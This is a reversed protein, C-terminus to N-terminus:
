GKVSSPLCFPLPPPSSFATTPMARDLFFSERNATFSGEERKGLRGGSEAVVPISIARIKLENERKQSVVIRQKFAARGCNSNKKKKNNNTLSGKEEQDSGLQGYQPPYLTHLAVTVIPM